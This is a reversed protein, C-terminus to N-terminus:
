HIAVVVRRGDRDLLKELRNSSTRIGNVSPSGTSVSACKHLMHRIMTFAKRALSLKSLSLWHITSGFDEVETIVFRCLIRDQGMPPGPLFHVTILHNPERLHGHLLFDLNVLTIAILLDELAALLSLFVSVLLQPDVSATRSLRLLASSDSILEM